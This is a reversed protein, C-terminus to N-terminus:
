AEEGRTDAASLSFSYPYTSRVLSASKRAVRADRRVCAERRVNHADVADDRTDFQSAVKSLPSAAPRTVSQKECDRLKQLSMTANVQLM